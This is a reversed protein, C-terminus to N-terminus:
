EDDASVFEDLSAALQSYKRLAAVTTAHSFGARRLRGYAKKLARPDELADGTCSASLRKELHQLALSEEGVSEYAEGVVQSIVGEDLERARLEHTLRRKGVARRGIADAAKREAFRTENLYGADRVKALVADLDAESAARPALRDRLEREAYDRSALLRLAKELLAPPGLPSNGFSGPPTM